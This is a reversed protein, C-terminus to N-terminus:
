HKGGGKKHVFTARSLRNSELSPAASSNKQSRLSFVLSLFTHLLFFSMIASIIGWVELFSLFFFFHQVSHIKTQDTFRSLLMVIPSFNLKCFSSVSVISSLQTADTQSKRLPFLPHVVHQPATKSIVVTSLTFEEPFFVRDCHLSATQCWRNPKATTRRPSFQILGVCVSSHQHHFLDSLWHCFYVGRLCPMNMIKDM